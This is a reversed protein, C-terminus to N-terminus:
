AAAWVEVAVSEAFTLGSAFSVKEVVLTENGSASGSPRGCTGESPPGSSIVAFDRAVGPDCTTRVTSAVSSRRDPTPTRGMEFRVHVALPAPKTPPVALVLTGTVTAVHVPDPM